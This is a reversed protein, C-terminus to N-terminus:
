CLPDPSRMHPRISRDAMAGGQGTVIRALRASIRASSTLLRALLVDWTVKLNVINVFNVDSDIGSDGKKKLPAPISNKCLECPRRTEGRSATRMISGALAPCTTSESEHRRTLSPFFRSVPDYSPEISAFFHGGDGESTERNGFFPNPLYGPRFVSYWM